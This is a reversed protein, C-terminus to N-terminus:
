SREQPRGEGHGGWGVQYLLAITCQADANGALAHPMTNKLVFEYDARGIAKSVEDWNYDPTM